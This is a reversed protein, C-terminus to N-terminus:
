VLMFKHQKMSSLLTFILAFNALGSKILCNLYCNCRIIYCLCLFNPIYMYLYYTSKMGLSTLASTAPKKSRDVEPPSSTIPQSSPARASFPTESSSPSLAAVTHAPPPAQYGYHYGSDQPSPPGYVMSAHHHPPPPAGYVVSGPYSPPAGYVPQPAHSATYQSSQPTGYALAVNSTVGPPQYSPPHLSSSSTNSLPAIDQSTYPPTSDATSSSHEQHSRTHQYTAPLVQALATDTATVDRSNPDTSTGSQSSQYDEEEDDAVVSDMLLM